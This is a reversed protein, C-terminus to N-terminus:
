IRMKAHCTRIDFHLGIPVIHLGVCILVEGFEQILFIGLFTTFSTLVSQPVEQPNM